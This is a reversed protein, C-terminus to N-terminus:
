RNIQLEDAAEYIIRQFPTIIKCKLAADVLRQLKSIIEAQNQLHSLNTQSYM